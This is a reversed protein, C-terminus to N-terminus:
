NFEKWQTRGLRIVDQQNLVRVKETNRKNQVDLLASVAARAVVDADQAWADKL